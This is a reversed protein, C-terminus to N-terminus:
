QKTFKRTAVVNGTSNYLRVFYIGSPMNELNLNASLGSVKYVTLVKGIINYVVINKIDASADYVVNLENGAPNPYLVIDSPSIVNPVGATSVLKSINFVVNKSYGFTDAINITVHHVGLTVASTLDLSLSFSGSSDHASNAYYTSTITAGTNTTDNWLFLGSNYRCTYNDCIGFAASTLWDAPLDTATTVHWKLALNSGTINTITIAPGSTKLVTDNITASSVTFTATQAGAIAPLILSILGIIAPLIKKM